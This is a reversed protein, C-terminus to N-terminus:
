QKVEKIKKTHKARRKIAKDSAYEDFSPLYGRVPQDNPQEARVRTIHDRATQEAHARIKASHEQWNNM